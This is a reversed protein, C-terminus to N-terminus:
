PTGEKLVSLVADLHTQVTQPDPFFAEAVHLDEEDSRVAVLWTYPESDFSRLLLVKWSKADHVETHAFDKGLRLRLTEVWFSADGQPENERKRAWFEAGDNASASWVPLSDHLQLDVFGHPAKLELAEGNCTEATRLPNLQTIWRFAGIPEEREEGEFVFPYVQLNLRSFASKKELDRKHTEALEIQKSLRQIDRLIRLKEEPNLSEALLTQLRELTEKAVRLRLENDLFQDTIDETRLEKRQLTGLVVFRDFNARFQEVPIRLILSETSRSEVYGGLAITMAAASDLTHTPDTSKLEIWGEHFVMRPQPAPEPANASEEAMNALVVDEQVAAMKRSIVHSGAAVREPPAAAAFSAHAVQPTTVADRQSSACAALVAIAFLLLLKRM